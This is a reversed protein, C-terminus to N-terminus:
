VLELPFNEYLWNKALEIWSQCIPELNKGPGASTLENALSLGHEGKCYMHLECSINKERMASALLLSNQVPVTMDTFTTWIFTKPTDENVQNELSMEDVLEDYRDGLLNVFSGRHAHPGSTIVPYNLIMGAPKLESATVGLRESILGKNWFMGYSAALHGGASSGSVIISDADVGWEKANEKIILVSRGLELLATPYVAPSISYRVVAAHYGMSLYAMALTEAERESVFGYGGGPCIVVIPRKKIGIENVTDLIYVSLSAKDLSGEEHLDFKNFFM